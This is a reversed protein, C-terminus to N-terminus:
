ADRRGGAAQGTALLDAIDMLTMLVGKVLSFCIALAVAVTFASLILLSSELRIGVFGVVGASIGLAGLWFAEAIHYKMRAWRYAGTSRADALADRASKPPMERFVVPPRRSAPQEADGSAGVAAGQGDSRERSTPRLVQRLPVWANSRSLQDRSLDRAEHAEFELKLEGTRILRRISEASLPGVLEKAGPVSVWYEM